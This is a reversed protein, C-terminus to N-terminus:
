ISKFGMLQWKYFDVMMQTEKKTIVNHQFQISKQNNWWIAVHNFEVFGGDFVKKLIM